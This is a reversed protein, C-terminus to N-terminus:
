QKTFSLSWRVSCMGGESQSGPMQQHLDVVLSKSVPLLWPLYFRPITSPQGRLGGGPSRCTRFWEAIVPGFATKLMAKRRELAEAAFSTVTRDM